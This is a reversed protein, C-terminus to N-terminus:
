HSDDWLRNRLREELAATQFIDEFVGSIKHHRRNDDRCAELSHSPEIGNIEQTHVIGQECAIENGPCSACEESEVEQVPQSPQRFQPPV